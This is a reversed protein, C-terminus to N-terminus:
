KTKYNPGDLVKLLNNVSEAMLIISGKEEGGGKKENIKCTNIIPVLNM